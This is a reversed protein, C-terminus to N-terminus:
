VTCTKNKYHVEFRYFKGDGKFETWNRGDILDVIEHEKEIQTKKGPSYRHLVLIM